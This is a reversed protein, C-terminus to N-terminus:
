SGDVARLPAGVARKRLSVRRDDKQPIVQGEAEESEGEGAGEAASLLPLEVMEVGKTRGGRLWRAQARADDARARELKSFHIWYLAVEVAVVAFFAFLSLLLSQRPASTQPPTLPPM